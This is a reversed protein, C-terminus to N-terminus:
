PRVKMCLGINFLSLRAGAEGDQVMATGIPKGIWTAGRTGGIYRWSLDLSFELHRSAIFSFHCGPEIFVGGRMYDKYQTNTTIHEDVDACYVLPSITFSFEFYFRDFYSAMSIGPAITIWKQTYNIVKERNAFSYYNPNDDIPAYIYSGAGGIERAYTGEGYQGTFSFRMYSMTIYTKLLFQDHIFPFSYGAFADFIILERTINDHISYHTLADNEVSMWDRDEMEGSKGPFGIKLSLTAFLGWKEMPQTRSFDLSLSDYFVPKIDWLLQSLMKAKFEPPPYPYVIEEAQGLFMGFSTWSSLTYSELSIEQAAAFPAGNFMIVLVAFVTINRM